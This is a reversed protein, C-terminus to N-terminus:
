DICRGRIVRRGAGEESSNDPVHRRIVHRGGVCQSPAADSNVVVAVYCGTTRQACQDLALRRAQTRNAAWAWGYQGVDDGLALAIWGNRVWAVVEADDADCADLAKQKAQALTACNYSWSYAGTEQSYAVAAYDALARTAGTGVLGAATLVTILFAKM